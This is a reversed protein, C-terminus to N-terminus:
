VRGRVQRSGRNGRVALLGGGVLGLGLVAAAAGVGADRFDFGGPKVLRVSQATAPASRPVPDSPSRMALAAAPVALAAVLAAAIVLFQRM